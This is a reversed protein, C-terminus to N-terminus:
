HQCVSCPYKRLTGQRIIGGGTRAVEHADVVLQLREGALISSVPVVCLLNEYIKKLQRDEEKGNVIGEEDDM